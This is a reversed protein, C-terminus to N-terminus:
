FYEPKVHCFDHQHIIGHNTVRCHMHTTGKPFLVARQDDMISKFVKTAAREANGFHPPLWKHAGIPCWWKTNDMALPRAAFFDTHINSAPYCQALVASTNSQWLHAELFMANEFIVDPNVRIVWDYEGFWGLRVALIVSYIAGQQYGPNNGMWALSANANPLGSLAGIWRLAASEEIESCGAFLLVDALSLLPAAEMSNPWCGQLHKLQCSSCATTM